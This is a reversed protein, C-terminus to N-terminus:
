LTNKYLEIVKDVTRETNFQEVIKNVALNSMEERRKDDSLILLSKNIFDEPNRSNILLGSKNHDVIEPLGGVNTAIIIKGLVMAELVAMPIGEHHSTVMFIDFLSVYKLVDDKFGTFTIKSSLDSKQAQEKLQKELPGSGVIIFRVKKNKIILKKAISILLDFGKVPVLRGVSGIIIEDKKINLETHLKPDTTVSTTESINIGNHIVHLKEPSIQKSLSVKISASVAICASFFNNLIFYNLNMLLNHKINKFFSITEQKGHITSVLKKINCKKKVLAGLMNEKYRHTHLVDINKDVLYTVIQKKISLFSNNNEEIIKVNFNEKKLLKSLKGNNLIIVYISIDHKKKIAMLLTYAQVEAGAWLDGSILHCINM